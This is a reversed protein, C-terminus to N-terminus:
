CLISYWGSDFWACVTESKRKKYTKEAEPFYRFETFSHITASRSQRESQMCSLLNQTKTLWLHFLNWQNNAYNNRYCAGAILDVVVSTCRTLSSAVVKTAATGRTTSRAASTRGPEHQIWHTTSANGYPKAQSARSTLWHVFFVAPTKKM